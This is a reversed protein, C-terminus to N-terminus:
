QVSERGLSTKQQKPQELCQMLEKATQLMEYCSFIIEPGTSIDSKKGGRLIPSLKEETAM